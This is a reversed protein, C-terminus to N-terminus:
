QTAQTVGDVVWTQRPLNIRQLAECYVHLRETAEYKVKEDDNLKVLLGEQLFLSLADQQAPYSLEPYDDACGHYHLAIKIQLPTM